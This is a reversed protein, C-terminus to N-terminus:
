CGTHGERGDHCDESKARAINENQGGVPRVGRLSPSIYLNICSGECVREGDEGRIDERGLFRSSPTRQLLVAHHQQAPVSIGLVVCYDNASTSRTLLTSGQNTSKIKVM